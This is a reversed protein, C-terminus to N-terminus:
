DNGLYKKITEVDLGMQKAIMAVSYGSSNLTRVETAASPEPEHYLKPKDFPFANTEANGLYQNVTELGLSMRNAILAPPYGQQQLSKVQSADSPKPQLSPADPEADTSAPNADIYQQVTQVELGTRSVIAELPYGEGKMAQVLAQDSLEVTDAQAGPRGGLAPQSSRATSAQHATPQQSRVSTADVITM